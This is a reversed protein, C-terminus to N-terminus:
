GDLSTIPMHMMIGMPPRSGEKAPNYAETFKLYFDADEGLWRKLVFGQQDFGGEATHGLTSLGTKGGHWPQKLGVHRPHEDKINGSQPHGRENIITPPQGPLLGTFNHALIKTGKWQKWVLGDVFVDGKRCVEQVLPVVSAKFATAALSAHDQNHWRKARRSLVYYYADENFGALDGKDLLRNIEYLYSSHYWDDDEMIAIRDHDGVHELATLLNHNLSPLTDESGDRKVVKVRKDKPFKYDEWDDTVILWQHYDFTQQSVYKALREFAKPRGSTTTILLM